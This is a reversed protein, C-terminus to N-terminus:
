NLWVKNKILVASRSAFACAKVAHSYYRTNAERDHDPLKGNNLESKEFEEGCNPCEHTKTNM